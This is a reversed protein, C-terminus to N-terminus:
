PILGKFFLASAFSLAGAGAMQKVTSGLEFNGREINGKLVAMMSNFVLLTEAKDVVGASFQAVHTEMTAVTDNISARFGSYISNVIEIMWSFMGYIATFMNSIFQDAMVEITGILITIVDVFQGAIDIAANALLSGYSIASQYVYNAAAVSSAAIEDTFGLPDFTDFFGGISDLPANVIGSIGSIFDDFFGM